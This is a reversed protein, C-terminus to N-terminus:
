AKKILLSYGRGRAVLAWARGRATFSEMWTRMDSIEAYPCFPVFEVWCDMPLVLAHAHNYALVARGGIEGGPRLTAPLASACPDQSSCVFLSALGFTNPVPEFM